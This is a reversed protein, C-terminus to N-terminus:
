KGEKMRVHLKVATEYAVDYPLAFSDRTGKLRLNITHPEVEIVLARGQVRQATEYRTKTKRTALRTM